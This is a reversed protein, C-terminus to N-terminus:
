SQSQLESTHEESREINVAKGTKATTIPTLVKGTKQTATKTSSKKSKRLMLGTFAWITFTTGARIREVALATDIKRICIKPSPIAKVTIPQIESRLLKCKAMLQNARAIKKAPHIQAAFAM